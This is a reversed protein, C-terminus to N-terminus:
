RPRKQSVLHSEDLAKVVTPECQGEFRVELISFPFPEFRSCDSKKFELAKEGIVTRPSISQMLIDKDLTVWSGRTENNELGTFRTRKSQVHALPVIESHSELWERVTALDCTDNGQQSDPEHTHNAPSFPQTLDFLQRVAKIELNSRQFHRKLSNDLPKNYLSGVVVVAEGTSTYRVSAAARQVGHGPQSEADSIPASSQRRAYDSLHDCLVVGTDEDAGNMLPSGLGKASGRRSPRSSSTSSSAANAPRTVRHRTYQLLLVHLEILNEPHIWYTAKGGKQGIPLTALATDFNLESGKVCSSHIKSASNTPCNMTAESSANSQLRSHQLRKERTGIKEDGGSQRREDNSFPARVAALVENWQSLLPNFDRKSFSSPRDLVETKFRIGLSSSGTWKKYKKLLKHFATKQVKAFRTLCQIEEGAKLATEEARSYKELRRVSVRTADFPPARLKLQAVQKDLHILRRAVEGAKSQVFLDIRLHQDRLEAIFEDEFTQLARTENDHGPITM